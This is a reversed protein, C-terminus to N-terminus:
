EFVKKYFERMEALEEPSATYANESNLGNGGSLPILKIHVHPVDLGEVVIGIKKIGLDPFNEQLTHDMKKSLNKAISFLKVFDENELDYVKDVEIKPVLLLHGKKLPHIDLFAIAFEDEWVINSPIERNIIKTFITPM